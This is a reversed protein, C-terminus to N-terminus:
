APMLQMPTLGSLDLRQRAEWLDYSDQLALWSEPSRGLVASLREAVQRLSLACPPQQMAIPLAM